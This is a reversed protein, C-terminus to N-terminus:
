SPGVDVAVPTFCVAPAEGLAAGLDEEERRAGLAPVPLRKM